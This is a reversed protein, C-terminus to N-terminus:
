PWQRNRRAVQKTLADAIPTHEPKVSGATRSLPTAQRKLRGSSRRNLSRMLSSHTIDPEAYHRATEWVHKALADLKKLDELPVDTLTVSTILQHNWNELHEVIVQYLGVSLEPRHIVITAGEAFVEAMRAPVMYTTVRENMLTTDTERDMTTVVGMQAVEVPSLLYLKPVGVMFQLNFVKWATSKDKYRELYANPDKGSM